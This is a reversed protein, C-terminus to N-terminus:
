RTIDIAIKRLLKVRAKKRLHTGDSLLGWDMKGGERQWFRAAAQPNYGAAPLLKVGLEDAEIETARVKAAQRGEADLRAKHGLINHAMEHAIVFALEDDSQAADVIGTSFLAYRGAANAWLKGSPAVRFHSPCGRDAVFSIMHRVGDRDFRVEAPGASLADDLVAEATEIGDFKAQAPVDDPMAKGNVSRLVDGALLGIKEANSGAVVAQITPFLTAGFQSQMLPRVDPTYSGLSHLILGTQPASKPCLVRNTVAIRHGIRAVRLDLAQLAAIAPARADPSSAGILLVALLSRVHQM